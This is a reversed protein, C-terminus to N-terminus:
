LGFKKQLNAAAKTTDETAKALGDEANKCAKDVAEQGAHKVQDAADKAAKGVAKVAEQAKEQTEHALGKFDTGSM